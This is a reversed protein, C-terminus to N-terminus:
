VTPHADFSKLIMVSQLSALRIYSTVIFTNVPELYTNSDRSQLEIQFKALSAVGKPRNSAKNPVCQRILNDELDAKPAPLDAM